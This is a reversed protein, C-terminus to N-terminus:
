IDSVKLAELKANLRKEREALSRLQGQHEARADALAKERVALDAQAAAVRTRADADFRKANEGALAATELAALAAAERQTVGREAADVAKAKAVAGALAAQARALIEDAEVHKGAAYQDAEDRVQAAQEVTAVMGLKEEADAKAKNFRVIEDKFKGKLILERDLLKQETGVIDDMASPIPSAVVRARTTM